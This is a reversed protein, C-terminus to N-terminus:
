NITADLQVRDVRGGCAAAIQAATMRTMAM